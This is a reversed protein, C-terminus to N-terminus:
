NVSYFDRYRLTKPNRFALDLILEVKELHNLPPNMVFSFLNLYGQIKDRNFSTHAYLFSKLLYHIRNVRDLPNDKDSIFKLEKSDYAISNLQLEKVLKKDSLVPHREAYHERHRNYLFEQM